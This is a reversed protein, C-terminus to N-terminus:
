QVVTLTLVGEDALRDPMQGPRCFNDFIPNCFHDDQQRVFESYGMQLQQGIDLNYASKSDFAIYGNYTNVSGASKNKAANITFEMGQTQNLVQGTFTMTGKYTAKQNSEKKLKLSVTVDYAGGHRSQFSGAMQVTQPLAFAVASLLLSTLFLSVQKM